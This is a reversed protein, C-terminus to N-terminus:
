WFQILKGSRFNKHFGFAQLDRAAELNAARVIPERLDRFTVTRAPDDSERRTIM